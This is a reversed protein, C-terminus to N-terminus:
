SSRILATIARTGLLDPPDSNEESALELLRQALMERSITGNGIQNLSSWAKEFAADLEALREPDFSGNMDASHAAHLISSPRCATSATAAPVRIQRVLDHFRLPFKQLIDNYSEGLTKGLSTLVNRDLGKSNKM